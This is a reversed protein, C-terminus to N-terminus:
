GNTHRTKERAQKWEPWYRYIIQHVIQDIVAIFVFYVALNAQVEEFTPIIGTTAQVIGMAVGILLTSFLLSWDINNIDSIKYTLYYFLTYFVTVLVIYVLAM